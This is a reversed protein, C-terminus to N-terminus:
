PKGKGLSGDRFPSRKTANSICNGSFNVKSCFSNSLSKNDHSHLLLVLLASIYLCYCHALAYFHSRLTQIYIYTYTYLHPLHTFLFLLFSSNSIYYYCVCSNGWMCVYLKCRYILTFSIKCVDDSLLSATCVNQRIVLM